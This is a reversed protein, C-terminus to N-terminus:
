TSAILEVETWHDAENDSIDVLHRDQAHPRIARKSFLKVHSPFDDACRNCRYRTPHAGAVFLMVPRRRPLQATKFLVFHEDRVPKHIGHKTRIHDKLSDHYSFTHENCLICSWGSNRSYDDPEERRRVDAAAVLSLRLWSRVDHSPPPNSEVHSVCDRWRMARRRGQSMLPCIGCLFREAANDMDAATTTEPDMGLLMALEAAVASARSDFEVLRGSHISPAPRGQFWHLHARAEWGIALDTSWMNPKSVRFVSTARELLRFDPNDAQAGPLLSVLTTKTENEWAEVFTPGDALAASLQPDDISLFEDSDQNFLDALPPFTDITRPPPFYTHQLNPVPTRLAILATAIIADKRRRVRIERERELRLARTALVCALVHPRARNWLKSTLRPKRYLVECDSINYSSNAVDNPDFGEAILRKLVRHTVKNLIDSYMSSSKRRTAWAWSDCQSALDRHESVLDRQEEIFRLAAQSGGNAEAAEYQSAIAIGDSCWFRGRELFDEAGLMTRRVTSNLEHTESYGPIADILNKEACTTCVRRWIYYDPETNSRGCHWCIQPGFLLKTWWRGSMSSPCQPLRDDECDPHDEVLFSNRWTSNTIPSDLLDHFSRNTRSLQVLELPHLYELIELVIDLHMSPLLSLNQSASKSKNRALRLYMWAEGAVHNITEPDRVSRGSIEAQPDAFTFPLVMSDFEPYEEDLSSASPATPLAM